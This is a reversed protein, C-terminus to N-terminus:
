DKPYEVIEKLKDLLKKFDEMDSHTSDKCFDKILKNKLPDKVNRPFQNFPKTDDFNSDIFSKALDRIKQKSFYDEIVFEGSPNNVDKHPIMLFYTNKYTTALKEIFISQRQKKSNVFLKKYVNYGAEDRDVVVIIKRLSNLSIKDLISIVNEGDTGGLRIFDFDLAPYDTKFHEIAKSIYFDDTKGEVLVIDKTSFLLKLIADNDVLNKAAELENSLPKIIGRELLVLSESFGYHQSSTCVTPSHTTMIIHRNFTYDKLIEFISKKNSIHIHADPEDLLYLTDEQGAFELAAKILLQKKQGESLDSIVQGNNYEIEINRILKNNKDTHAIYLKLFLDDEDKLETKIEDHTYYDKKLRDIFSKVASNKIKPDAINFKVSEISKISLQKEVFKKIDEAESCILCLLSIQWYFKNLYLMKPYEIHKDGTITKIYDKYFSEYYKKWLRDEEGSYIAIVRKPLDSRFSENIVINKDAFTKYNLTYSVPMGTTKGYNRYFIASIAELLNSKGSGNNGLVISLGNHKSTDLDFGSLNKFKSFKISQIKM